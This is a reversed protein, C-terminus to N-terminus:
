NPVIKRQPYLKACNALRDQNDLLTTSNTGIQTIINERLKKELWNKTHNKTLCFSNIHYM